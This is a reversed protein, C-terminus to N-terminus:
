FCFGLLVKMMIGSYRATVNSNDLKNKQIGYSGIDGPKADNTVVEYNIENFTSSFYDLNGLVYFHPSPKGGFGIGFSTYPASGTLTKYYTNIGPGSTIRYFGNLKNQGYACELYFGPEGYEMGKTSFYFRGMGGFQNCKMNLKNNPEDIGSSGIGGLTQKFLGIELRRFPKIVLEASAGFIAFPGFDSYKYSSASDIQSWFDSLSSNKSLQLGVSGGGALAFIFKSPDYSKAMIKSYLAAVDTSGSTKTKKIKGDWEYIKDTASRNDTASPALEVYKEMSSVADTYNLQIEYLLARNYYALPYYPAALLGKSWLSIAESYKKEETATTAQVMYKRAVEPLEPKIKMKSYVMIISELISDKIDQNEKKVFSAYVWASDLLQFADALKISGMAKSSAANYEKISLKADEYLGKAIKGRKDLDFIDLLSIGEFCRELSPSMVLLARANSKAKDVDGNKLYSYGQFFTADFDDPTIAMYIDYDTIAQSYKGTEVYCRARWDCYIYTYAPFITKSLDVAKTFDNSAAEYQKSNYSACGRHYYIELLLMENSKTKIKSLAATYDTVADDYNKNAMYSYGRIVYNYAENPAIKIAQSADTIAITNNGKQYNAIARFSYACWATPKIMIAADFKAIASDLQERQECKIGEKCLKIYKNQAKATGTFLTFSLFSIIIASFTSKNM